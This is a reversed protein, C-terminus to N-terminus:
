EVPPERRTVASRRPDGEVSVLTVKYTRGYNDAFSGKWYGTEETVELVRLAQGDSVVEEYHSEIAWRAYQELEKSDSNFPLTGDPSRGFRESLQALLSLTAAGVVAQVAGTTVQQALEMVIQASGSDAGWSYESENADLVYPLPVGEDPSEEWALQRVETALAHFDFAGTASHPADFELRYASSPAEGPMPVFRVVIVVRDVYSFAQSDDM